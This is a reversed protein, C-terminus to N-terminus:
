ISSLVVTGAQPKRDAPLQGFEHTAPHPDLTPDISATDEMKDQSELKASVSSCPLCFLRLWPSSHHHIVVVM